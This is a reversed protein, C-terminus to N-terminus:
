PPGGFQNAFNWVDDNAFAKPPPMDKPNGQPAGANVWRVITDIEADSLSRDNKFHQIGVTKDIHWPPMQRAAVRAKISRAWPRTEEYTMFAMPAIYGPRHCAQCKDQLIPAVDRTFVPSTAVDRTFVPPPAQQAASARPMAVCAIFAVWGLNRLTRYKTVMARAELPLARSRLAEDPLCPGGTLVSCFNHAQGRPADVRVSLLIADLWAM